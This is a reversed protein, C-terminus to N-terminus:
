TINYNGVSWGKRLLIKDRDEPLVRSYKNEDGRFINTTFEMIRLCIYSITVQLTEVGNYSILQTEEGSARAHFCTRGRCIVEGGKECDYLEAGIILSAYSPVAVVSRTVQISGDSGVVGRDVRQLRIKNWPQISPLCIRSYFLGHFFRVGEKLVNLKITAWAGYVVTSHAFILIRDCLRNGMVTRM